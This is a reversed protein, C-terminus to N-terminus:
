AERHYFVTGFPSAVLVLAFWTRPEGRVIDVHLTFSVIELSITGSTTETCAMLLDSSPLCSSCIQFEFREM